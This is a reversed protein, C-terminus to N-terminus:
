KELIMKGNYVGTATTMRYLYVGAPLNGADFPVIYERGKDAMGEYLIGLQKGSIDYVTLTVWSVEPLMFMVSTIESFPNPYNQLLVESVPAEPVALSKMGACGGCNTSHNWFSNQASFIEKAIFVGTFINPRVTRADETNLSYDIGAPKGLYLKGWVMAGKKFTVHNQVYILLPVDEPNVTILQGGTIGNPYGAGRIRIKACPTFHVTAGDGITLCGGINVIGSGFTVDANKGIKVDRYVSDSLTVTANDPVTVNIIGPYPNSEFVPLLAASPTNNAVALSSSADVPIQTARAFTGTATVLSSEKIDVRGDGTKMVGLGGSNVTTKKLEIRDKALMVYASLLDSTDANVTITDEAYCGWFNTVVVSYDGSAAVNISPTTEDTSWLYSIAPMGTVNATLQVQDGGCFLGESIIDTAIKGSRTVKQTCRYVYGNEYIVTWTVIVTGVPFITPQDNTIQMPSKHPRMMSLLNFASDEYCIILDPPCIFINDEAPAAPCADFDTNLYWNTHKGSFVSRAMFIGYFVAPNTPKSDAIVLDHIITDPTNYRGLCFFGNVHAGEAVTMVQNIFFWVSLTDPNITVNKHLIMKDDIRLVGCQEFKITSGDGIDFKKDINVVPKTFVVTANTGVVIEKYLTDNLYVTLNNPVHVSQAGIYPMPQFAPWSFLAPDYTADVVSSTGDIFINDGEAYTGSATIFSNDRVEIKGGLKKVGVGGSYVTSKKMVVRDKALIVYDRIDTIAIVQVQDPAANGCDDALHWTRTIINSGPVMVDTFVAQLGMSCNDWEDIVDGTLAVDAGSANYATSTIMFDSPATFAPAITDVVTIIQQQVLADNGNVDMLSWTRTIVQSAGCNGEAYADTYAAQLAQCNDWEDTVDGTFNVSIDYECNMGAYVTLDAPHTFTPVVHDEVTVLATCTATNNSNDTVTLIVPNPNTTMDACSFDTKSIALHSIGCADSSGNDVQSASLTANGTADLAVFVNQCVVTPPTNDVVTVLATCSSANGHIDTVTLVVPNPNTLIDECIFNTKSLSMGAIGCADSSGNDVQSSSLTANGTADLAVFVNQCVVTPPTNDVVTVLATCSSVNGHIDTVTLVVPNPNTLIDECSFNTKNLSMGAIGCADSSGNDVQSTSLTANGTADLAVFVNQCVVTPPTNDVVTVLATCSSANGHIDTVTLVVPNPNTLIDECSFNTKNLALGAIGCEDSSGQNVQYPFIEVTGMSNLSVTINKGHAVPPTIDQVMVVAQCSAANGSSDTVTLTVVNPGADACTFYSPSVTIGAIGDNDTSGNNVQSATITACSNGRHTAWALANIYLRQVNVDSLCGSGAYNGAHNFGVVRGAGFDRVAVAASGNQDTMIATAPNTAYPRIPGINAGAYFSFSEPLGSLVPHTAASPVKTYNMFNSTASVRKIIIIPEMTIQSTNWDVNNADWENHIFAKGKNLVFDVLANQGSLPLHDNYTTGNLHIVAAFEDLAPNAGDWQYEPVAPMTVVYGAAQIANRLSLTHANIVDWLLLVREGGCGGGSSLNVNIDKCLAIPMVTDADQANTNNNFIWIMVVLVSCLIRSMKQHAVKIRLFHLFNQTFKKM